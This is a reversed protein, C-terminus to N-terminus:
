IVRDKIDQIEFGTYETFYNITEKLFSEFYKLNDQLYSLLEAIDCPENLYYINYNYNNENMVIDIGYFDNKYFRMKNLGDTFSFIGEFEYEINSIFHKLSERIIEQAVVIEVNHKTSAHIILNNLIEIDIGMFDKKM